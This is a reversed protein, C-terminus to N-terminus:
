VLSAVVTGARAETCLSTAHHAILGCHAPARTRTGDSRRVVFRIYCVYTTAASLTRTFHFEDQTFTNTTTLCHNSYPVSRATPLQASETPMYNPLLYCEVRWLM